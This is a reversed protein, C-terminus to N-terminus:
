KLPYDEPFVTHWLLYIVDADTVKGDGTFDANGSIPYDGPFVTHWLLYIVDADTVKDDGTFDGVTFAAGFKATYTMNGTCPGIERDWGEFVLGADMGAPVKPAAPETVMEGYHYTASSIISNDANLFTVTYEIYTSKYTAIYVANGACPVVQKDWGNFTYTYTNDAPRTPNAPVTVTDGLGGVWTALVDGNWNQFQVTYGELKSWTLSGGYSLMNGNNWSGNNYYNVTATVDAFSNDAIAPAQGRFTVGSLYLCGSFAGSGVKRVGGPVAVSGLATCDEFANSGIATIGEGLEVGQIRYAYKSWPAKGSAYDSIAGNGTIRLINDTRLTWSLGTGCTGSALVGDAPDLAASYDWLSTPYNAHFQLTNHDNDRTHNDFNATARLFYNYGYRQWGADWTADLNYYQGAIEVINWAHAGGNGIGTILRTDVGLELALRYFMLAYGQCVSTKNIFAAYATYKLKYSADELNDYDYTVTNCIYDYIGRVKQYDSADELDLQALVRDVEADVAKEQAATSYFNIDYSIAYYYRGNYRPGYSISAQWSCGNYQIYDGEDPVGTHAIADYYVTKALAKVAEGTRYDDLLFEVTVFSERKVLVDRLVLAADEIEGANEKALMEAAPMSDYDMRSSADEVDAYIPNVYSTYVTEFAPEDEGTALGVPAMPVLLALVLMWSLLRLWTNCHKM